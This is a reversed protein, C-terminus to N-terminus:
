LAAPRQHPVPAIKGPARPALVTAVVPSPQPAASRLAQAVVVKGGMCQLTDCQVADLQQAVVQGGTTRAFHQLEAADPFDVGPKIVMYAVTLWFLSRVVAFM